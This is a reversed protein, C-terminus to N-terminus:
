AEEGAALREAIQTMTRAFVAFDKASGRLEVAQDAISLHVTHIRHAPMVHDRHQVPLPEIWVLPLRMKPEEVPPADFTTNSTFRAM